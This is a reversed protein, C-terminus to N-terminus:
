NKQCAILKVYPPQITAQTGTFTHAPTNVTNAGSAITTGCMATVAATGSSSTSFKTGTVSCSAAGMTGAPTYTTSGGTGGVDANAAVTFLPYKGSFAQETFGTPCSGTDVFVIVGSPLGGNAVPLVGKVNQTLDVLTSQALCFTIAALVVALQLLKKM